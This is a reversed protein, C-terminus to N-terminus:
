EYVILEVSFQLLQLYFATIVEGHRESESLLRANTLGYRQATAKFEEDSGDFTLFNAKMEDTRSVRELEGHM